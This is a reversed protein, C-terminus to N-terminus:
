PATEPVVTIFRISFIDAVLDAGTFADHLVIYDAGVDTLRGMRDIVAGATGLTFEVRM